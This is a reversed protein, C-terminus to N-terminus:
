REKLLAELVACHVKCAEQDFLVIRILQLSKLDPLCELITTLMVRAADKLPYGYIGTSIAPFGISRIQKKEALALANRYCESLLRDEPKDRGYVPGVCHIIFRQPLRYAGTAVAGGTKLPALAASEEKLEPGAARHIAGDVGGGGRLSSNAANVIAELDEQRTIDGQVIQLLVGSISWEM